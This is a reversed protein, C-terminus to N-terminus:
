SPRRKHLGLFVKTAIESWFYWFKTEATFKKWNKTMFGQIRIPKWGLISSGYGSELFGFWFCQDATRHASDASQVLHHPNIYLYIIRLVPVQAIVPALPRRGQGGPHPSAPPGAAPARPDRPHTWPRPPPLLSATSGAVEWTPATVSRSTRCWYYWHIMPLSVLSKTM